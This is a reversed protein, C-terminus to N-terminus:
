DGGAGGINESVKTVVVEVSTWAPQTTTGKVAYGITAGPKVNDLLQSGTAIVKGSADTLVVQLTIDHQFTDVNKVKGVAEFTSGTLMKVTPQGILSVLKEYATATAAASASNSSSTPTKAPSSTGSSSHNTSSGCAVLLFLLVVLVVPFTFYARGSSRRLVM